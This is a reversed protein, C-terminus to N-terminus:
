RKSADKAQIWLSKDRSSQWKKDIFYGTIQIWNENRNMSTFSRKDRWTDSINGDIGNYIKAENKLRYTASANWDFNEVIIETKQLNEYGEQMVLKPFKEEKGIDAKIKKIELKM